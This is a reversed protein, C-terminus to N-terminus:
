KIRVHPAKLYNRLEVRRIATLNIILRYLINISFSIMRSVIWGSRSRTSVTSTGRVGSCSKSPYVFGSVKFFHNQGFGHFTLSNLMSRHGPPSNEFTMSDGSPSRIGSFLPHYRRISLGVRRTRVQRKYVDGLGRSTVRL